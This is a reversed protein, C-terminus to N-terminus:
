IIKIDKVILTAQLNDLVIKGRDKRDKLIADMIEIKLNNKNIKISEESVYFSSVTATPVTGPATTGKSAITSIIAFVMIVSYVFITKKCSCNTDQLKKKKLNINKNSLSQYKKYVKPNKNFLEEKDRNRTCCWM